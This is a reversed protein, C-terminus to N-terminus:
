NKRARWQDLFRNYNDVRRQRARPLYPALRAAAQEKEDPSIQDEPCPIGRLSLEASVDDLDHAREQRLDLSSDRFAALWEAILAPEGLDAFRRGRNLYRATNEMACHAEFAATIEDPKKKPPVKATM